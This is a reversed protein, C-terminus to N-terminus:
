DHWARDELIHLESFVAQRKWCGPCAGCPRNGTHCSTTWGLIREDLASERVLEATSHNLAPAITTVAGEQLSTLASLQDYFARTGDAHRDGDGCVSGLVVARLRERIAIAAGATALFQNRFPWWEPSPSADVVADDFLLGSGFDGLNLTTALFPLDLAEAVRRAARSEADAPRQGYDVFVTLAPRVLAALATSDVGGSLLLVAEPINTIM